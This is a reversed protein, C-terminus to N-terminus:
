EFMGDPLGVVGRVVVRTVETWPVVTMTVTGDAAQAAFLGYAGRSHQADFWEPVLLAAGGLHLEIIGGHEREAWLRAVLEALPHSARQEARAGSPTIPLPPPVPAAERSQKSKGSRGAIRGLVNSGQEARVAEFLGQLQSPTDSEEYHEARDFEMAAGLVAGSGEDGHDGLPDETVTDDLRDAEDEAEHPFPIEFKARCHPCKGIKGALRTPGHLKHGNPCLFLFTEDSSAATALDTPPRSTATLASPSSGGALVEATTALDDDQHLLVEPIRFPAGCRPCKGTRGARDEPCVIKHGNPCFAEIAM